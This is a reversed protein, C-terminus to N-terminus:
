LGASKFMAEISSTDVSPTNRLNGSKAEELAARTEANTENFIINNQILTAM